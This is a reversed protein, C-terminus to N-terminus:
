LARGSEMFALAHGEYLGGPNQTWTQTDTLRGHYLQDPRATDPVVVLPTYEGGTDDEVSQMARHQDYDLASWDVSLKERYSRLRGAYVGGGETENVVVGRDTKQQRRSFMKPFFRFSGAFLLGVDLKSSGSLPVTYRIYRQV